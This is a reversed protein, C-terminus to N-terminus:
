EFCKCRERALNNSVIDDYWRAGIRIKFMALRGIDLGDNLFSVFTLDDPYRNSGTLLYYDNMDKGKYTFFNESKVRGINEQELIENIQDKLEDFSDFGLGEFTFASGNYLKEFLDYLGTTM